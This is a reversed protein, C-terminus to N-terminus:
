KVADFACGDHGGEQNADCVHDTEDKPPYVPCFYVGDNLVIM